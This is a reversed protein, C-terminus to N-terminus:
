PNRGRYAFMSARLANRPPPHCPRKASIRYKEGKECVVIWTQYLIATHSSLVLDGRVTLLEDSRADANMFARPPMSRDTCAIAPHVDIVALHM